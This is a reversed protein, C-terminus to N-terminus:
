NRVRYAAGALVGVGLGIFLGALLKGFFFGIGMGLLLCGGTLMGAVKDKEKKDKNVEM